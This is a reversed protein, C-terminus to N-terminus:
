YGFSYVMQLKSGKSYHRRNTPITTIGTPVLIKNLERFDVCLRTRRGEDKKYALTVPAAFPSESEEILGAELLKTIQNEIEREDPISCRYPKKSIYKNELLKIHAEQNKVEGVDYKHKAFISLNEDLIKSIQKIKINDLHKIKDLYDYSNEEFYRVQIKNNELTDTKNDYSYRLNEKLTKINEIKNEDVRQLINLNEDQLLRFQKIADLGLLVDYSFNDNKIVYADIEQEIKHIKMPLKIKNYSKGAGSITRFTQENELM